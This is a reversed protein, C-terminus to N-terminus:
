VLAYTSYYMWVHYRLDKSFFIVVALAFVVVLLVIVVVVVFVVFVVLIIVSFLNGFNRLIRSLALVAELPIVIELTNIYVFADLVFRVTTLVLADVLRATVTAGTM